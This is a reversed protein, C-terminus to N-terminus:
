LDQFQTVELEVWQLGLFLPTRLPIKLHGSSIAFGLELGTFPNRSIGFLLLFLKEGLTKSSYWYRSKLSATSVELVVM